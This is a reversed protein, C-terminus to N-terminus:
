RGNQLNEFKDLMKLAPTKKIGPHHFQYYRELADSIERRASRSPKLRSLAQSDERTLQRLLRVSEGSLAISTGSQPCCEPCCVAGADLLFRNRVGIVAEDRKCVPCSFPTLGFGAAQLLRVQFLWLNIRTDGIKRELNDLTLLAAELAIENPEGDTFSLSLLEMVASAYGTLVIDQKIGSFTNLVSVQGLTQVSRSAKFYIMAEVLNPIELSGGTAGSKGRRAGKAIVAVKGRSRTFLTVIRSSEGHRITRIVLAEDKVPGSVAM